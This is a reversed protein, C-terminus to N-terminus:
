RTMPSFATAVQDAIERYSFLGISHIRRAELVKRKLRADPFSSVSPGSEGNVLWAFHNLKKLTILHYSNRAPKRLARIYPERRVGSHGRQSRVDRLSRLAIHIFKQAPGQIRVAAEIL